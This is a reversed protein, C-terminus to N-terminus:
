ALRRERDRRMALLIAAAAGAIWCFATFVAFNKWGQEFGLGLLSLWGHGLLQALPWSLAVFVWSFVIVLALVKRESRRDSEEAFRMQARAITRAVLAAPAQPTPLRRLGAGIAQWSGLEAACAPCTRLHASVRQDEKADLAGAPALSLLERIEDHETMKEESM